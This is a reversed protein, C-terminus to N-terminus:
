RSIETLTYIPSQDYRDTSTAKRVVTVFYRVLAVYLSLTSEPECKLTCDVIAPCPLAPVLVHSLSDCVETVTDFAEVLCSLPPFM